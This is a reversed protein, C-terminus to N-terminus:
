KIKFIYIYINYNTKKLIGIINKKVDISTMNLM